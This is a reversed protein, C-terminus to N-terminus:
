RPPCREFGDTTGHWRPTGDETLVLFSFLPGETRDLIVQCTDEVIDAPDPEPGQIAIVVLGLDETTASVVAAPGTASQIEAAVGQLEVDSARGDDSGSDTCAAAVGAGAVLVVANAWKMRRM